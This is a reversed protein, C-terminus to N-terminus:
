EAESEKTDTAEYNKEVVNGTEQVTAKAEAPKSPKDPRSPAAGKGRGNGSVVQLQHAVVPGGLDAKGNNRLFGGCDIGSKVYLTSGVTTIGGIDCADSVKLRGNIEVDGEILLKKTTLSTNDSVSINANGNVGLDVSSSNITVKGKLTLDTTGAVTANVNGGVKANVSGVINANVNGGVQADVHGKKVDLNVNGSEVIIDVDGAKTAIGITKAADVQIHEDCQIHTRGKVYLDYNGLVHLDHNGEVGIEYNCSKDPDNIRAEVIDGRRKGVYIKRNGETDTYEMYNKHIVFVQERNLRNDVIITTGNLSTMSQVDRNTKDNSHDIPLINLSPKDVRADVKAASAWEGGVVVDRPEFEDRFETIQNIKQTVEKATFSKQYEWDKGSTATAFYVPKMHNGAEFFLWVWNGRKPVVFNGGTGCASGIEDVMMQKEPQEGEQPFQVPKPDVDNFKAPPTPTYRSDSPPVDPTESQHDKNLINGGGSWALGLAPTAWPLQDTPLEKGDITHVERIRIRVRGIDLPDANDEIVGRYMGGFDFSPQKLQNITM